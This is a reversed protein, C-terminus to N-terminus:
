IEDSLSKLYFGQLAAQDLGCEAALIHFDLAYQSVLNNDQYLALLQNSAEKGQVPHDFVKNMEDSLGLFRFM